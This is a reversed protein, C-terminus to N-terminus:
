PSGSSRDSRACNCATSSLRLRWPLRCSSPTTSASSTSAFSAPLCPPLAASAYEFVNFCYSNRASPHRQSSRSRCYTVGESVVKWLTMSRVSGAESSRTIWRQVCGSTGCGCANAASPLRMRPAFRSVASPSCQSVTVSTSCTM